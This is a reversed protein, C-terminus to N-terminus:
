TSEPRASNLQVQASTSPAPFGPQKTKWFAAIKCWSAISVSNGSFCKLLFRKVTNAKTKTNSQKTKTKKYSVNFDSKLLNIPLM